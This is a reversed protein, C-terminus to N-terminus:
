IKKHYREPGADEDRQLCNYPVNNEQRISAKYQSIDGECKELTMTKNVGYIVHCHSIMIIIIDKNDDRLDCILDNVRKKNESDLDNLPEDLLFIFSKSVKCKIISSIFSVMKKQGGSLRSISKNYPDISFFRKKIATTGLIEDLYRSKYYTIQKDIVSKTENSLINNGGGLAHETPLSLLDNITRADKTDEDQSMYTIKRKLKSDMAKSWSMVDGWGDENIFYSTGPLETFGQGENRRILFNFFTSKGSGNPGKLLVFDGKSFCLNQYHILQKKGDISVDCNITIFPKM